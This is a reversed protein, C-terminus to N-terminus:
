TLDRVDTSDVNLRWQDGLFLRWMEVANNDSRSKGVLWLRGDFYDWVERYRNVRCVHGQCEALSREWPRPNKVALKGTEDVMSGYSIGYHAGAGGLGVHHSVDFPSAGPQVKRSM